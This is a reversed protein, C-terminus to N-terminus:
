GHNGASTTLSSSITFDRNGIAMPSFPGALDTHVLKLPEKARSEPDKRPHSIESSKGMKCGRCMKLDGVVGEELGRFM